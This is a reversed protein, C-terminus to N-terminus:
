CRIPFNQSGTSMWNNLALTTWKEELDSVRKDDNHWETGVNFTYSNWRWQNNLRSFGSGILKPNSASPACGFLYKFLKGHVQGENCDIGQISGSEKIIIYGSRCHINNVRWDDGGDVTGWFVAGAYNKGPVVRDSKCSIHLSSIRITKSSRPNKLLLCDNGESIDSVGGGLCKMRVLLTCNAYLHSPNTLEDVPTESLSVCIESQSVLFTQKLKSHLQSLTWQNNVELSRKEELYAFIQIEPM